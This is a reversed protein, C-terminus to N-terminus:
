ILIISHVNNHQLNISYQLYNSVHILQCMGYPLLHYKSASSNEIMKSVNTYTIYATLSFKNVSNYKITQFSSPISAVYKTSNNDYM